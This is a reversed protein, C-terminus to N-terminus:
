VGFKKVETEGTHKDDIFGLQPLLLAINCFITDDRYQFAFNEGQFHMLYPEEKSFLNLKVM